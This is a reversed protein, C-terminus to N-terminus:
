GVAQNRGSEKAEFLLVDADEIFSNMEDDIVDKAHRVAYGVSISVNNDIGKEHPIAAERVATVLRSAIQSVGQLDAYPILVLFEEGGFRIVADKPRRVTDALIKAVQKLCEDGKLHGYTDNYLKFYDIDIMIAGVKAEDRAVQKILLPIENTLYMRNYQGTLQDHFTMLELYDTKLKNLLHTKIRHILTSAIVPKMVFDSAGIEWCANESDVDLTATVFIVPIDKTEPNAKLARCVDLGDLDPMNMDLLVLDPKHASCHEIAEKGSEAESCAFISSLLSELLLRSMSEDDVILVNCEKFPKLANRNM